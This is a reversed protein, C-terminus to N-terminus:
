FDFDQTLYDVDFEYYDKDKLKLRDQIETEVKEEICRFDEIIYDLSFFQFNDPDYYNDQSLIKGHLASGFEFYFEGTITDKIYFVKKYHFFYYVLADEISDFWNVGFISFVNSFKINVYYM